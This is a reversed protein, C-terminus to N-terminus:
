DDMGGPGHNARSLAASWDRSARTLMHGLCLFWVENAIERFAAVAIGNKKFHQKQRFKDQIIRLTLASPHVQMGYKQQVTEIADVNVHEIEVTLIDIHEQLVFAEIASADDFSGVVQRAAVAAPAPETPDLVSIPVGM